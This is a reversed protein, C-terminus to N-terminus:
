LATWCLLFIDSTIYNNVDFVPWVQFERCVRLIGGERALKQSNKAYLKGSRLRVVSYILEFENFNTGPHGIPVHLKTIFRPSLQRFDM